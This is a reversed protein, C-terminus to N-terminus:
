RNTVPPQPSLLITRVVTTTGGRKKVARIVITNLGDQLELTERFHGSRDVPIEQGNATVAVEPQTTGRLEVSRQDSTMQDTPSQILLEPAANLHRIEVALYVLIATALLLILLRRLGKPTLLKNVLSPQLREPTKPPVLKMAIQYERDFIELVTEERVTLFQAYKKVFNRAYVPGPLNQYDGDEIAALYRANVAIKGSVEDLSQGLEERLLRLREGLTGSTGITKQRFPQM